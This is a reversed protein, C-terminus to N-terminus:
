VEWEGCDVEKMTISLVMIILGSTTSISRAMEDNSAAYRVLVAWLLLLWRYVQVLIFDADIGKKESEQVYFITGAGRGGFGFALDAVLAFDKKQQPAAKLSM